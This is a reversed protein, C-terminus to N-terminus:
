HIASIYPEVAEFSDDCSTAPIKTFIVRKERNTPVIMQPLKDTFPMYEEDSYDEWSGFMEEYDSDHDEFRLQKPKVELV